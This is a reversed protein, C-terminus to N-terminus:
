SGSNVARVFCAMRNYMILKKMAPILRKAEAQNVPRPLPLTDATSEKMRFRTKSSPKTKRRGATRPGLPMQIATSAASKQQRM